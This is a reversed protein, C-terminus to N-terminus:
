DPKAIDAAIKAAWADPDAERSKQRELAATAAARLTPSAAVAEQGLGARLGRVEAVFAEKLLLDEVITFRLCLKQICVSSVPTSDGRDAPLDFWQDSRIARLHNRVQVFTFDGNGELASRLSALRLSM